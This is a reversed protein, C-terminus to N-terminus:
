LLQMSKIRDRLGFFAIERARKKQHQYIGKHHFGLVESQITDRWFKYTSAKVGLTVINPILFYNLNFSTM